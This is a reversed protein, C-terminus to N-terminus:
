LKHRYFYVLVGFVYAGFLPRALFGYNIESWSYFQDVADPVAFFLVRGYSIERLILVSFVLAVFRFLRKPSTSPLMAMILGIFLLALQLNEFLNNEHAFHVPLQQYFAVVGLWLVAPVIIPYFRFNVWSSFNFNVM